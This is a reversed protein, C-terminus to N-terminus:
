PVAKWFAPDEYGLRWLAVGALHDKQALAVRAAASRDGMFYVIHPTGGSSYTFWNQSTGSSYHIKVGKAHALAKAQVDSLTPAPGPRGNNIWDYGYMGIALVLRNAPAVKLAAQVNDRVWGYPAVPGPVGGSFHHDYAMIVLYNAYRALAGYDYAGNISAPVGTLPFVSVAVTKKLPKLDNSLTAIFRTLDTRSSPALLEFDINVGDLRDTQVLHALETAARHRTPAQWLVNSSGNANTVLPIVQIHRQHAKAVVGADYGIDAVSGDPNVAFWRPSIATLQRWHTNFSTLSGPHPDGPTRNEYFGVVQFSGGPMAAPPHHRVSGIWLVAVVGVAAGAILVSRRHQRLWALWQDSTM